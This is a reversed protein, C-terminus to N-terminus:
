VIDKYMEIGISSYGKSLWETFSDKNKDPALLYKVQMDKLSKDKFKEIDKAKLLHVQKLYIWLQLM